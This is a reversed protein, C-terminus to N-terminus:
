QNGAMGVVPKNLTQAGTSGFFGADGYNFIGGDSAVLWYGQGDFTSSIGVVPKNLNLAGASGFFGADGYNFIGGDSAALWYGKGDASSAMGVVPKNLTQAGTSGFFGADGYNFIGGDSAVLWYGKGDPTSAMGVVPKNLTQAGTSGFFGADGYNFIGGDSAVLWYGKGDPAVDMGVVPKNLTQAGTSGFFGANGFNFIGGDSAVLWYGGTATLPQPLPTVPPASPLGSVDHAAAFVTGTLQSLNPSTTGDLTVNICLPPGQSLSPGPDGVLTEWEGAGSNASPNFWVFTTGSQPNCDNIVVSTFTNGPSLSVDFFCTPVFGDPATM